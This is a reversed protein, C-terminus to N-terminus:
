EMWSLLWTCVVLQIQIHASSRASNMNAYTKILLIRFSNIYIFKCLRFRRDRMQWINNFIYRGRYGCVRTYSLSISTCSTGEGICQHWTALHARQFVLFHKRHVHCKAKVRLRNAFCVFLVFTLFKRCYLSSSQDQRRFMDQVDIFYTTKQTEFNKKEGNSSITKRLKLCLM